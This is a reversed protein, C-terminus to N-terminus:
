GAKALLRKKVRTLRDKLGSVQIIKDNPDTPVIEVSDMSCIVGPGSEWRLKREMEEASITPNREVEREMLVDVSHQRRPMKAKRRQENSIAEAKAIVARKLLNLAEVGRGTAFRRLVKEVTSLDPAESDWERMLRLTEQDVAAGAVTGHEVDALIRRRELIFRVLADALQEDSEVDSGDSLFLEEHDRLRAALDKKQRGTV